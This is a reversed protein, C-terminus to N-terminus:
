LAENKSFPSGNGGRVDCLQESQTNVEVIPSNFAISGSRFRNSSRNGSAVSVSSLSWACYRALTRALYGDARNRTTSWRVARTRLRQASDGGERNIRASIGHRSDSAGQRSGNENANSAFCRPARM